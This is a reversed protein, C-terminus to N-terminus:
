NTRNLSFDDFWVRGTISCPPVSCQARALRIIVAETTSGTTFEANLKQWNSDGTPVAATKTLIKGDAADVIEWFVTGGSQLNGTKAFVEFSYGTNSEVAVTQTVSRFEQGTISNFVIVLSRAGGRKQTTDFAIQPQAGEAIQWSFANTNIAEGEFDGNLIKGVNPKDTESAASQSLVSVAARHKKAALLANTLDQATESKEKAPLENWVNVAADFKKDQSLYKVLAARVPASDGLNQKLLSLDDTKLTQAVANAFHIAFNSDAEAARRMANFAEATQGRRLLINGHLWLVPAYNPALEVSRRAAREAGETDGMRERMRGLGYWYRWDHPSLAAAQQYSELAESLVAPVFSQTKVTALSSHALPNTPAFFVATEATEKQRATFAAADGFYWSFGCVVGLLILLAPIILLARQTGSALKISKQEM